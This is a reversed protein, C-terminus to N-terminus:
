FMTAKLREEFKPNKKNAQCEDIYLKLADPSDEMTFQLGGKCHKLHTPDDPPYFLLKIWMLVRNEYVDVYMNIVHKPTQSLQVTFKPIKLFVVPLNKSKLQELKLEILEKKQEAVMQLVRLNDVLLAMKKPWIIIPKSDGHNYLEFKKGDFLIDGKQLNFCKGDHSTVKPKWVVEDDDGGEGEVIDYNFQLLDALIKKKKEALDM